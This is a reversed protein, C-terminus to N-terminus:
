RSRAGPVERLRARVKDWENWFDPFSKEVCSADDLRVTCGALEFLVLSMAMRHDGWTCFGITQRTRLRRPVIRLGDPLTDVECGTKAIERALGQLRDSEKLRLHAAGTIRTPGSALSALVAVTPVLDPCESLDLETGRLVGPTTRVGEPGSHVAGGLARILDIMKRDGQASEPDLGAVRLGQPLLLGAALFYSGNSWDGEVTYERPRYPRSHVVFRTRGPEAFSGGQQSAPRFSGDELTEVRFAAGFERMVRLTLAVYPWSVVSRGGLQLVTDKRALPAALLLGSLFQSSQECSVSAAGGALGCPHLAFPPYGPAEEWDFRAGQEQLVRALEGIPREHMRGRGRILCRAAGLAAVPTIFRCTSGSEGVDLEVPGDEPRGLVAPGQVLLGGAGDEEIGAGLAQLCAATRETDWSRLLNRVRSAGSALAAAVLARHSVSKSPPAQVTQSM